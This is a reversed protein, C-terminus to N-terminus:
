KNLDIELLVYYIILSSYIEKFIIYYMIFIYKYRDSYKSREVLLIYSDLKLFLVIIRNMGKLFKFYYLGYKWVKIIKKVQIM